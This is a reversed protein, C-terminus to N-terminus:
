CSGFIKLTSIMYVVQQFQHKSVQRKMENSLRGCMKSQALEHLFLYIETLSHFFIKAMCKSLTITDKVSVRM